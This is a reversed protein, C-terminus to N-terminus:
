REDELHVPRVTDCVRCEATGDGRLRHAAAPDPCEGCVLQVDKPSLEPVAEPEDFTAYMSELYPDRRRRDPTWRRKGQAACLVAIIAVGLLVGLLLEEIAM